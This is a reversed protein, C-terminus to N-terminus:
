FHQLEHMLFGDLFLRLDHVLLAFLVLGSLNKLRTLDLTKSEKGLPCTGMFKKLTQAILIM